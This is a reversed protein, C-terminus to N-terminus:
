RLSKVREMCIVQRPDPITPIFIKWNITKEKTQSKSIKKTEYKTNLYPISYFIIPFM